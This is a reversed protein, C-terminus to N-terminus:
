MAFSFSFLYSHDWKALVYSQLLKIFSYPQQQQQQQQQQQKENRM